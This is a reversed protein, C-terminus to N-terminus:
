PLVQLEKPPGIPEDRGDNRGFMRVHYKGPSFERNTLPIVGHSLNTDAAYVSRGEDDVIELRYKQYKTTTSFPLALPLSVNLPKEPTITSSLPGGASRARVFFLSDETSQLVPSPRHSSVVYTTLGIVAAGLVAALAQFARLRSMLRYSKEAAAPRVETSRFARWERAAALNAVGEVGKALPVELFSAFELLRDRCRGCVALHEQVRLEEEASLEKAAYSSLTEESPHEIPDPSTGSGALQELLGDLSDADDTV